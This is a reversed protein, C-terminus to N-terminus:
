VKFKNQLESCLVEKVELREEMVLVKFISVICDNRGDGVLSVTAGNFDALQRDPCM